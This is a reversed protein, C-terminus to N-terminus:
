QQVDEQRSLSYVYAAVLRIKDERLKEKQAPMNNSRGGRVTHQIVVALSPGPSMAGLCCVGAVSLWSIFTM